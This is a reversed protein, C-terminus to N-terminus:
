HFGFLLLGDRIQFDTLFPWSVVKMLLRSTGVGSGEAAAEIQHDAWHRFVSTIEPGNRIIRHSVDM